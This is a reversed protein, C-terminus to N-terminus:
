RQHKNINKLIRRLMEMLTNLMEMRKFRLINLKKTTGVIRWYIKKEKKDYKILEIGSRFGGEPIDYILIGDQYIIYFCESEESECWKGNLFEYPDINQFLLLGSLYLAYFM